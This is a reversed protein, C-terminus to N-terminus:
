NVSFDVPASTAPQTGGGYIGGPTGPNTVTVHVTGSTMVASAPITAELKGASTWQTTVKTAGFNVTATSTFNSGDVELAFQAAGATTSTPSLQSIAPMQGAAPPTTKKSYGCALTIAILTALLSKSITKM